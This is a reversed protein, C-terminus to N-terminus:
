HRRCFPPNAMLIDFNFEKFNKRDKALDLLRYFGDLYVRSWERDKLKEEWRTYDLTNLHLFM